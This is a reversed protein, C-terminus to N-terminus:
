DKTRDQYEEQWALQIAKLKGDDAKAAADKFEPLEVIYRQLDPFRVTLPAIEPHKESLLVGIEEANDWTLEQPM